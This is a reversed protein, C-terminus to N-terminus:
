ELHLRLGSLEEPLIVRGPFNAKLEKLLTDFSYRVESTFHIPILVGPNVEKAIRGLSLSSTHM